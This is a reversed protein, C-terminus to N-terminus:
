VVRWGDVWLPEPLTVVPLPWKSYDFAGPGFPSGTELLGEPDLGLRQIDLLDDGLNKCLGEGIDMLPRVDSM